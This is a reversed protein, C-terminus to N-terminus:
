GGAFHQAQILPVKGLQNSGARCCDAIPFLAACANRRHGLLEHMYDLSMGIDWGFQSFHVGALNSTQVPM